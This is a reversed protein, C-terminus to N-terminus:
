QGIREKEGWKEELMLNLWGPGSEPLSLASLLDKAWARKASQSYSPILAGHTGM